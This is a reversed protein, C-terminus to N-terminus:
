IYMLINHRYTCATVECATRDEVMEGLADVMCPCRYWSDESRTGLLVEMWM